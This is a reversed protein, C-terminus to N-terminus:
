VRALARAQELLRAEAAALRNERDLRWAAAEALSGRFKTIM